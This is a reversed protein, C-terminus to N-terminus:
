AASRASWCAAEVGQGLVALVIPAWSSIMPGDFLNVGVLLEVLDGEVPDVDAPALGSGSVIRTRPLSRSTRSSM